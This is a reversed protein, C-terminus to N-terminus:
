PFSCCGGRHPSSARPGLARSWGGWCGSHGPFVRGHLPKLGLSVDLAILPLSAGRGHEKILGQGPASPGLAWLWLASASSWADCGM